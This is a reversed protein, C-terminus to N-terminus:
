ERYLARRPLPGSHSMKPAAPVAASGQDSPASAAPATSAASDEGHLTSTPSPAWQAVNAAAAPAGASGQNSPSSAAPATSVASDEGQLISTSLPARQAVIMGAAPSEASGQDGGPPVVSVSAFAADAVPSFARLGPRREVTTVSASALAVFRGLLASLDDIRMRPGHVCFDRFDSSTFPLWGLVASETRPM